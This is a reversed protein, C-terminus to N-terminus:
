RIHALASQNNPKDLKLQMAETIPRSILLNVCTSQSPQQTTTPPANKFRVAGTSHSIFLTKPVVRYEYKATFRFPFPSVLIPPEAVKSHNRKQLKSICNADSQVWNIVRKVITSETVSILLPNQFKAAIFLLNTHSVIEDYFTEILSWGCMKSKM